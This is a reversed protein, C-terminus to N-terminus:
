REYLGDTSHYAKSYTEADTRGFTFYHTRGVAADDAGHVTASKRRLVDTELNDVALRHSCTVAADDARALTPVVARFHTREFAYFQTTTLTSHNADELTARHTSAVTGASPSADAAADALDDTRFHTVVDAGVDTAVDCLYARAITSIFTGSLAADDTNIHARAVATSVAPHLADSNTRDIYQAGADTFGYTASYASVYPRAVLLEDARVVYTVAVARFQERRVWEGM